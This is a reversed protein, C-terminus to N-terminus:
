IDDISDEIETDIAIYKKSNISQDKKLDSNIEM